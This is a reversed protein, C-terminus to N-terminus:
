DKIYQTTVHSAVGEMLNASECDIIITGYPDMNENIWKVLPDSLRTFEEFQENNIVSMTNAGMQALKLVYLTNLM